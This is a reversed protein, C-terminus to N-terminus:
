SLDAILGKQQDEIAAFRADVKALIEPPIKNRNEQLYKNIESRSKSGDLIQAKLADIPNEIKLEAVLRRPDFAPQGFEQGGSEYRKYRLYLNFNRLTVGQALHPSAPSQPNTVVTFPPIDLPRLDVWTHSVGKLDTTGGNYFQEFIEPKIIDKLNLGLQRTSFKPRERMPSYFAYIISSHGARNWYDKQMKYAEMTWNEPDILLGTLSQGANVIRPDAGDTEFRWGGFDYESKPSPREPLFITIREPSMGLITGYTTM